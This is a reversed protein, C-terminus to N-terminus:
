ITENEQFKDKVGSLVANYHYLCVRDCQAQGTKELAAQATAFIKPAFTITM